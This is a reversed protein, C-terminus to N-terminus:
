QIAWTNSLRQGSCGSSDTPASSAPAAKWTISTPVPPPKGPRATAIAKGSALSVRTSETFRLSSATAAIASSSPM